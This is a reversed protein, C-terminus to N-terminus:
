KSVIFLFDIPRLDILYGLLQKQSLISISIQMSQYWYQYKKWDIKWKFGSKIQQLLKVFDQISLAVVSVYLTKDTIAFTKLRTTAFIVCSASWTLMVEYNILPM